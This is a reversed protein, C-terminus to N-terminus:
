NKNIDNLLKEKEQLFYSQSSSGSQEDNLILKKNM